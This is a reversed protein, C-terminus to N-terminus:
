YKTFLYVNTVGDTGRGLLQVPVRPDNASAFNLGNRGERDGVTYSRGSNLSYFTNSLGTVATTLEANFVYNTPVSAVAASADAFRGLNLLTRGRGLRISHLIRVSDAAFPLSSDLTALARKSVSDSKIPGGYVPDRNADVGSLPTGNCMVEGLLMEALGKAAFLQAIKSSPTPSYQRRAAIALDANTRTQGFGVPGNSFQVFFRQDNNDGAVGSANFLEDSFVGVLYTLTTFNGAFNGLVGNTLADAGAPNDLQKPQVVDPANVKTLDSCAPAALLGCLALTPWARSSIFIRMDPCELASSAPSSSRALSRCAPTLFHPENTRDLLTVAAIRSQRIRSGM